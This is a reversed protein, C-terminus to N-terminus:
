QGLLSLYLAVERPLSLEYCEMRFGCKLCTKINVIPILGITLSPSKSDKETSSSELNLDCAQYNPSPLTDSLTLPYFFFLLFLVLRSTLSHNIFHFCKMGEQFTFLHFLLEM